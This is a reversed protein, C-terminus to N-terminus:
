DFLVAAIDNHCQDLGSAKPRRQQQTQEGAYEGIQEVPPSQQENQLRIRHQHGERQRDQGVEAPHSWRRQQHKGHGDTTDHDGSTLLVPISPGIMAINVDNQAYMAAIDTIEGFPSDLFPPKCAINVAYQVVGPPYTNFDECNQRTQFFEFYDPHNPDPTLGGGM